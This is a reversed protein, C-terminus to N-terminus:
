VNHVESYKPRLWAALGAFFASSPESTGILNKDQIEVEVNRDLHFLTRNRVISRRVDLSVGLYTKETIWAEKVTTGCDIECDREISTGPALQCCASICSKRGIFVPGVIEASEDIEVEAGAWVKPRIETGVPLLACRGFLADQLLAYFDGPSALQKVYGAYEFRAQDAALAALTSSVGDTAGRLAEANAVALGSVAEDGAFFQTLAKGSQVHFRVFERYDVETYTDLPVFLLLDFGANALKAVAEEWGERHDIVQYDSIGAQELKLLSRQVLSAGLFDCHFYSSPDHGARLNGDVHAALFEESTSLIAAIRM